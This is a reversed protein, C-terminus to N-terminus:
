TTVAVLMASLVLDADAATVTVAVVVTPTVMEGPEAESVVPPVCCNVALTLPLEVVPTVQDADPPWIEDEPRYVAGLLAPVNLTVAVLTASGVWDAEAVTVTVAGWATATETLGPEAESAVPPVCCNVAVTVPELLVATVQDALPPEMEVDPRNVAGPLAPLMVTVAVLAASEVLDAEAVTVTLAGTTETVMEGTEAEINIPPVCVNVAPTVPLLLVDTVQDAVPPLM